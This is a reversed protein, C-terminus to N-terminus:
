GARRARRGSRAEREDGRGSREGTGGVAAECAGGGGRGATDARRSDSDLWRRQWRRAAGGDGRRHAATEGDDGHAPASGGGARWGADGGLRAGDPLAVAHGHATGRTAAPRARARGMGAQAAKAYNGFAAEEELKRLGAVVDEGETVAVRAGGIPKTTEGAGASGPLSKGRM